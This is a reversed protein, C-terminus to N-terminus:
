GILGGQVDAVAGEGVRENCSGAFWEYRQTAPFRGSIIASRGAADATIVSWPTAYLHNNAPVKELKWRDLLCEIRGEGGAGEVVSPECKLARNPSAAAHLRAQQGLHDAVGRRQAQCPSGKSGSARQILCLGQLDGHKLNEALFVLFKSVDEVAYPFAIARTSDQSENGLALAGQRSGRRGSILNCQM